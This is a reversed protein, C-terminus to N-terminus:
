NQDNFMPHLQICKPCYLYDGICDIELLSHKKNCASCTHKKSLLATLRYELQSVWKNLQMFKAAFSQKIDNKM